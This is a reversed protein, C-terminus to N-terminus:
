LTRGSGGPVWGTSQPSESVPETEIGNSIEQPTSSRIATNTWLNGTGWGKGGTIGTSQPSESVPETEIGIVTELPTNITIVPDTWLNPV